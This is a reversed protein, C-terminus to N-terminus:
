FFEVGVKQSKERRKSPKSCSKVIFFDTDAHTHTNTHTDTHTDKDSRYRWECLTLLARESALTM